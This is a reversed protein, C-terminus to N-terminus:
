KGDEKNEKVDASRIKEVVVFHILKSLPRTEQVKILDGTNIQDAFEDPLRAHIRTRKKMFREFKHIKITREFEITVRKPFKRIVKGQFVRGRTSIGLTGVIKRFNTEKGNEEHAATASQKKEKKEAM